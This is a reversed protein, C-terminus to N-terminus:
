GCIKNTQKTAKTKVTFCKVFEKFLKENEKIFVKRRRFYFFFLDNPKALFINLVDLFIETRLPFVNANTM